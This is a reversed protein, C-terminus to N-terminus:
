GESTIEDLDIDYKKILRDLRPRSISLIRASQRKNGGTRQLVRTVQRREADDLSAISMSNGSELVSEDKARGIGLHEPRITTGQSLVVARAIANELERVNGRWDHEQLMRMVDPPIVKPPRHMDRSARALFHQALRPIDEIRDRLPPVHIEVVRLRFYVDERFEGSRVMEEVDRHTAAIVRARTQKPQESGVPYFEHEQLVRLLKAQFAPSTDGIEDLFITGRGALEFRGRREAVAGTFAGKVHGFLESELLQDPVATCNIAIFPEDAHGSNAHITRAIVEKGTGTEGRIMVPAMTDAVRGLTKYIEIMRPTTGILRTPGEAQADAEAKAGRRAKRDQFCRTLVADLDDPEVPKSLYDYAGSRIASIASDTGEQGTFVVVDVDADAARLRSLLEIGTMGPMYLDTLVVGPDFGQMAGFAAEASPATRVQYGRAKLGYEVAALLEADDDVVLIKREM